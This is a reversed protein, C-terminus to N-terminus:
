KKYIFISKYLSFFAQQVKYTVQSVDSCIIDPAGNYAVLDPVFKRNYCLTLEPSTIHLMTDITLLVTNYISFNSLYYVKFIKM